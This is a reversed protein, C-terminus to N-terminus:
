RPTAEPLGGDIPLSVGTTPTRRSVFFLVGEAVHRATVRARLLNRGQYYSELGEADLGRSKMRDPGVEEWLGSKREGHSFVADPAVMNVRIDDAALEMSAIRALQHAAAKTASYAGFRPGPSPVNKTSVLVIDGGTGQAQFHRGGEALLLLTGETNVAQLKRYRDPELETLAAVHALGANIVLLDVGGWTRAVTGFGAAVSNEDTVDLTLTLLREGERAGLGLDGRLTDLAEDDVDTAAVLAGEELLRECIASGIAGAAGTVLAVRGALMPETGRALKAHQLSRYEMDFLHNEDLGEYTGGMAAIRAKARLTQAVIDRAIAAARLSRGACLAGLGPILIVRPNPDFPEIGAPLRDVHREVYARYADRYADFARQLQDRLDAGTPNSLELWLPLPKTRILHDATLPASVAFNVGEEACLCALIDEDVLPLVIVRRHPMDPDATPTALLGRVIPAVATLQDELDAATPTSREDGPAAARSDLHKEAATVLEVTLEYSERATDGWTVLGHKMWVMARAQPREAVAKAVALALDFGPVVYPLLLVSEGLADRIEDEGGEQNTLALVADAHTHDVFTGPIAAHVLTEISPTASHSDLLCGHLQNVMEDDGLEALTLLKKLRGLDLAVHGEPEITALDLGSAKMSLTEVRSGFVDTTRSKLSTNGGGHLVLAKEAGLQRSSYTRLALSEDAQLAFREIAEAADSESWRNKM